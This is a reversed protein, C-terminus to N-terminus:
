TVGDGSLQHLIGLHSASDVDGNEVPLCRASHPHRGTTTPFRAAELSSPRDAATGWASRHRRHPPPLPKQSLDGGPRPTRSGVVPAVQQISCTRALPPGRVAAERAPDENGISPRPTASAQRVKKMSEPPRQPRGGRACPLHQPIPLMLRSSGAPHRWMPGAPVCPAQGAAPATLQRPLAETGIPEEHSRWQTHRSCSRFLSVDPLPLSTRSRSPEESQM